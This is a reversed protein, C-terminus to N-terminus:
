RIQVLCCRKHSPERRLVLVPDFEYKNEMVVNQEQLWRLTFIAEPKVFSIGHPLIRVGTMRPESGALVPFNNM